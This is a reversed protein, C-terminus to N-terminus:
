EGGKSEIQATAMKRVLAEYAEIEDEDLKTLDHKPSATVDAKVNVEQREVFGFRRGLFSLAARWDAKGATQLSEFADLGADGEAREAASLFSAFPEEGDEGRRLWANLCQPTVGGIKAAIAHTAGARLARLIRAEVEPTLSTPRGM